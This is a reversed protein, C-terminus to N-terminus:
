SWKRGCFPCYAAVVPPLAKRKRDDIKELQVLPASQSLRPNDGLMFRQEVRANFKALHKNVLEICRCTKKRM